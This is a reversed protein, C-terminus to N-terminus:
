GQSWLVVSSNKPPESGAFPSVELQVRPEQTTWGSLGGDIGSGTLIVWPQWQRISQTIWVRTPRSCRSKGKRLAFSGFPLTAPRSSVWGYSGSVPLWAMPWCTPLTARGVMRKTTPYSPRGFSLNAEKLAAVAASQLEDMRADPVM